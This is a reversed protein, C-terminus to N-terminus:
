VNYEYLTAATYDMVYFVTGTPNFVVSATTNTGMEADTDFVVSDYTATSIDWATGLTYQYIERDADMAFLKTGDSSIYFDQPNGVTGTLSVSKSDYSATHVLYPTSLTYQYVTRLTSLVYMQTGDPRMRVADPNAGESIVSKSTQLTIGGSLDWAGGDMSYRGVSDSGSDTTYMELGDSKMDLGSLNSVVFQNDGTYSLSTIDWATGLDYEYARNGNSGIMILKLGDSKFAVNRAQSQVAAFSYSNGSYTAASIDWGVGVGETYGMILIAM